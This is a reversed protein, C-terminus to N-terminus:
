SLAREMIQVAGTKQDETILEVNSLDFLVAKLPNTGYFGVHRWHLDNHVYNNNIFIKIAKRAAEREIETPPGSLTKLVPMLLVDQNLLTIIKAKM